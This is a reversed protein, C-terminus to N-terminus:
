DPSPHLLMLERGKAMRYHWGSEDIDKKLAELASQRDNSSVLYSLLGLWHKEHQFTVEGLWIPQGNEEAIFHSPWLYIVHRRGAVPKSLVSFAMQGAHSHPLLPLQALDDSTTLLQLWALGTATQTRTWGLQELKQTFSTLSGGIQLNLPHKQNDLVDDRYLPLKQWDGHEWQKLSMSGQVELLGPAPPPTQVSVASAFALLLLTTGIIAAQRGALKQQRGHTRYAMGLATSWIVGGGLAHLVATLPSGLYLQAFMVMVILLTAASYITWRKEYAIPTAILVAGLSFFVSARLVYIDPIATILPPSQRLVSELVISLLWISGAGALWHHMSLKLGSLWLVLSVVILMALTTSSGALASLGLMIQDGAPNALENLGLHLASDAILLPTQPLLAIIILIISSLVLLGALMALGAAEPHKPDGLALAIHQLRPHREGFRLLWQVLQKSHPQILSFLRHSLWGLFWLSSVLAVLLIVLRLAVESALELSAGFAMGPLLYAPAWALASFINAFLFRGMPMEMMGAVLPIVARV